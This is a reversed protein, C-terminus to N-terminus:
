SIAEKRAEKKYKAKLAGIYKKVNEKTPRDEEPIKMYDDMKLLEDYVKQPMETKADYVITEVFKKWTDNENQDVSGRRTTTTTINNKSQQFLLSIQQKIETEGPIMFSEPHNLKLAERMQAPNMKRSSDQKGTNFFGEIEDKYLHIYTNGYLGGATKKARRAWGQTPTRQQSVEFDNAHDHLPDQLQVDHVKFGGTSIYYSAYRVARAACDNRHYSQVAKGKRDQTSFKEASKVKGLKIMKEIYVRSILNEPAFCENPTTFIRKEIKCVNWSSYSNTEDDSCSQENEEEMEYDSDIDDSQSSNDCSLDM